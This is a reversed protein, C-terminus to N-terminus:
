SSTAPDLHCAVWTDVMLIMFKEPCIKMPLYQEWEIRDKIETQEPKTESKVFFQRVNTATINKENGLNYCAADIIDGM